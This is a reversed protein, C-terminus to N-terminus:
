NTPIGYKPLGRQVTVNNYIHAFIEHTPRGWADNSIQFVDTVRPDSTVFESNLITETVGSNQHSDFVRGMHWDMWSYRMDGSIVDDHWRETSYRPLYGFTEINAGEDFPENYDLVVQRKLLPEDGIGAFDKLAYDFKSPKHWMQSLGQFYSTRNQVNIIGLLIGHEKCHYSNQSSSDIVMARGAYSGLGDQLTEVNQLQDTIQVVGSSSGLFQSYDIVGALPDTGYQVRLVDRYRDGSRNLRELYTQLSMSLRLQRISAATTQIDLYSSTGNVLTGQAPTGYTITGVGPEGDDAIRRWNTPGQIVETLVPNGPPGTEIEITQGNTMPILMEMGAQPSPLASTYFDRNWNRYRITNEKLATDYQVNPGGYLPHWRDDKSDQIQPNRFYDDYVKHYANIPLANVDMTWGPLYTTSSEPNPFGMYTAISHRNAGDEMNMEFAGINYTPVLKGGYDELSIFKEWGEEGVTPWLVRNPVYFYWTKVNVRHM